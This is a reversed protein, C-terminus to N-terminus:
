DEKLCGASIFIEILDLSKDGLCLGYKYSDSKAFDPQAWQVILIIRKDRFFLVLRDDVKMFTSSILGLGGSSLDLPKCILDHSTAELQIRGPMVGSLSYRKNSRREKDQWPRRAQM